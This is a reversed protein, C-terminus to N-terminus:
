DRGEEKQLDSLDRSERLRTFGGALIFVVGATGAITLLVLPLMEVDGPTCLVWCWGPCVFGIFTLVVGTGLLTNSLAHDRKKM